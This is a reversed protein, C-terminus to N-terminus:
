NEAKSLLALPNLLILRRGKVAILGEAQFAKLTESITQQCSGTMSAMQEQTPKKEIEVARKWSDSDTLQNCALNVLLKALRTSVDCVMLSEIQEGLYRVRSGLVRIVMLAFEPTTRVLEEFRAKDLAWLVCDTLTEANCKRKQNDVLEAIGFMEGQHRMFFIPEKGSLSIKFIKVIGQELYYCSASPEEEFFIVENKPYNKRVALKLFRQRVEPLDQFFDRVQVHWKDKPVESYETEAM